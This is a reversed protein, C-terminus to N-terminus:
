YLLKRKAQQFEEETLVNSERLAVLQELEAAFSSGSSAPTIHSSVTQEQKAERIKERLKELQANQQALDRKMIPICNSVKYPDSNKNRINWFDKEQTGQYSPTNIEIVGTLLGTNVEIGNIDRYYFSTVRGGFTAGAMFGPKVVLLRDQLVVICQWWEGIITFEINEDSSINREALKKARGRFSWTGNTPMSTDGTGPVGSSESVISQESESFTSVAEADSTTIQAEIAQQVAEFTQSQRRGFQISALRQSTEIGHRTVGEKLVLEISGATLGVKKLIVGSIQQVPIEIDGGKGKALLGRRTVRVKDQLLEIQGDIGEAKISAEEM